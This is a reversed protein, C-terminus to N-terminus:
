PRVGAPCYQLLQAVTNASWPYAPLQTPLLVGFPGPVSIQNALQLPLSWVQNWKEIILALAFATIPKSMSAIHCRTSSTWRTAPNVDEWPARAYGYVHDAFTTGERQVNLGYGVVRGALVRDIAASLAWGWAGKASM